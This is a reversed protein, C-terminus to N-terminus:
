LLWYEELSLPSLEEGGFASVSEAEPYIKPIM